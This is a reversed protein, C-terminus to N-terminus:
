KHKKAAKIDNFLCLLASQTAKGKKKNRNQKELVAARIYVTKKLCNLFFPHRRSPQTPPQHITIHLDSVAIYLAVFNAEM